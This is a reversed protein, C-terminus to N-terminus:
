EGAPAETVTVTITSTVNGCTATIVSTGADVGTVVAVKGELM